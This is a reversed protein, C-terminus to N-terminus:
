VSRPLDLWLYDVRKWAVKGLKLWRVLVLDFIVLAFGFASLVVALHTTPPMWPDTM